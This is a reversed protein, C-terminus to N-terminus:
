PVDFRQRAHGEVEPGTLDVASSPGLPAPLVVTTRSSVPRARGVFPFAISKPPSGCLADALRRRPTISCIARTGSVSVTRSCM